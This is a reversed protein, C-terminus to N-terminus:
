EEASRFERYKAPGMLQSLEDPSSLRVKFIWGRDYCDSNVLGPDDELDQNVEVVTGSAPAYVSAAAKCSELACAEEGQSVEGDMEPLEVFTLDGLAHQAYDTIGVTGVGDEVRIWEHQDTYLLEEPIQSM